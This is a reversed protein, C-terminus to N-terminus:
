LLDSTRFLASTRVGVGAQLGLLDARSRPTPVQPPRNTSDPEQHRAIQAAIAPSGQASEYVVELNDGDGYGLEGLRELAARLDDDGRQLLEREQEVLDM